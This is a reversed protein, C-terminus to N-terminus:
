NETYWRIDRLWSTCDAVTQTRFAYTRAPTEVLFTTSDDADVRAPCGKLFVSGANKGGEKKYYHIYGTDSLEIWRKDWKAARSKGGSKKKLYEARTPPGRPAGVFEIEGEGPRAEAAGGGGGGAGWDGGGGGAGVAGADPTDAGSTPVRDKAAAGASANNSPSTQVVNTLAPDGGGVVDIYGDSADLVSVSSSKAMEAVAGGGSGVVKQNGSALHVVASPRGIAVDSAGTATSAHAMPLKGNADMAGGPGAFSLTTACSQRMKKLDKVYLDKSAQVKKQSDDFRRLFTAIPGFFDESEANPKEGFKILCESYANRMSSCMSQLDELKQAYSFLFSDVDLHFEESGARGKEQLNKAQKGLRVADKSLIEVEAQIAKVSSESVQLVADLDEMFFAIATDQGHLRGLTYALMDMLTFDKHNTSRTDALKPLSRLQVGDVGGKATGANVFNGISLAYVLVEEFRGSQLLQDCADSLARVEPAVDDYRLPLAQLGYQLNLRPRLAPISLLKMLFQDVDALQSKDGKYKAFAEEEETTPGLKRLNYVQEESLCGNVNPLVDLAADLESTTVRFTSKFIGLNQGRKGDLLSKIAKKDKKKKNMDKAPKAEFREELFAFDLPKDGAKLRDPTSWFSKSLENPPLKQWFIQKLKCEPM